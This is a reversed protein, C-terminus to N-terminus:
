RQQKRACIRTGLLEFDFVILDNDLFSVPFVSVQRIFLLKGIRSIIDAFPPFTEPVEEFTRYPRNNGGDAAGGGGGGDYDSFSSIRKVWFKDFNVRCYRDDVSDYTGSASLHGRQGVMPFDYRAHSSMTGDASLDYEVQFYGGALDAMATIHPAYIVNWKGPAVASFSEKLGPNRISVPASTTTTTTTTTATTTTSTAALAKTMESVPLVKQNNLMRQLLATREVSAQNLKYEDEM